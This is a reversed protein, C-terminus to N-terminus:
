WMNILIKLCVQFKQVDTCCLFVTALLRFPMLAICQLQKSEIQHYKPYIDNIIKNM